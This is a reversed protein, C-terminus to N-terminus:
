SCPTFLREVRPIRTGAKGRIETNTAIELCPKFDPPATYESVYVENDRSWQRIQEWFSAWEFTKTATYGTTGAYPPDCYVLANKPSLSRYDACLFNLKNLLSSSANQAYNRGDLAGLKKFLSNRVMLPSTKGRAYGWFWKGAFSCGFGVFGRLASPEMQRCAKYEDESVESPPVWGKQLAQWMLILDLCADSLIAREPRVEAAVWCSGCFPEIYLRGNLRERLFTGLQKRIRFKGGFYQM